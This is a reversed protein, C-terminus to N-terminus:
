TPPTSSAAARARRLKARHCPDSAYVTPRRVAAINRKARKTNRSNLTESGSISKPINLFTMKELVPDIEIKVPIWRDTFSGVPSLLFNYNGGSVSFRVESTKVAAWFDLWSGGAGGPIGFNLQAGSPGTITSDLYIELDWIM